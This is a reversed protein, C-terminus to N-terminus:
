GCEDRAPRPLENHGALLSVDRCCRCIDHTRNSTAPDRKHIQPPFKPTPVCHACTRRPPQTRRPPPPTSRATLAFFNAKSRVSRVNPATTLRLQRPNDRQPPCSSAPSSVRPQIPPAGRVSTGRARRRGATNYPPAGRVSTGRARRRGALNTRTLTVGPSSVPVSRATRSTRIACHRGTGFGSSGVKPGASSLGPRSFSLRSPNISDCRVPPRMTCSSVSRPQRRQRSM